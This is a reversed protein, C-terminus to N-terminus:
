GAAALYAAPVRRRDNRRSRDSGDLAAGGARDDYGRGVDAQAVEGGYEPQDSPGPETDRAFSAIATNSGTHRAHDHSGMVYRDWLAEKWKWSLIMGDFRPM